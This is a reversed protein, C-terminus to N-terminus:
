KMATHKSIYLVITKSFFFILLTMAQVSHGGEKFIRRDSNATLQPTPAINLVWFYYYYYIMFVFFSFNSLSGLTGHDNFVDIAGIDENM